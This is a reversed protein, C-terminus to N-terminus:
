NFDASGVRVVTRTKKEREEKAPESTQHAWAAFVKNGFSTIALYDGLFDGVASFAESDWAYNTFTKGGDTSRALTVTTDDNNRRRDYFVLNVAGSEPDVTMWQFFQDNGNHIPDNNARVP